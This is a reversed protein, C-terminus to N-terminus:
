SAAPELPAQEPPAQEPPAEAPRHAPPRRLRPPGERVLLRYTVLFAWGAGLLLVLGQYARNSWDTGASAGHALAALFALYSTRHVTLWIRRPLRRRMAATVTVAVLLWMAVVGLAVPVTRWSSTMPVLLEVLGFHVYSDAVLSVLHGALLVLSLGTVWRHVDLLWAPRRREPFLWTSMATGLLLSAGLLVLSMIGTARVLYWTVPLDSM